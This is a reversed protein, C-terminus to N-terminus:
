LHCINPMQSGKIYIYTLVDVYMKESVPLGVQYIIDHVINGVGYSPNYLNHELLDWLCLGDLCYKVSHYLLGKEYFRTARKDMIELNSWQYQRLRLRRLTLREWSKTPLILKGTTTMKETTTHRLHNYCGENGDNQLYIHFYKVYLIITLSM